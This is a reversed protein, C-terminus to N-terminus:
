KLIVKVIASIQSNEKNKITIFNENKETETHYCEIIDGLKCEKKYMVELESIEAANDLVEMAFDVYCSNNVHLNVDIDREQITYTYKLKMNEEEKLKGIEEEFVMIDQSEYRNILDEPPKKITNEILDMFIWKSTAIGILKGNKYFEYDRYAYFKDMKRSWTKLAIEEGWKLTEFIKLKWNLVIWVSKNEEIYNLGDQVSDSHLGAIEQLYRILAQPRVKNNRNIDSYRIKFKTEFYSM